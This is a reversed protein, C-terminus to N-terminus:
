CWWCSPRRGRALNILFGNVSETSSTRSGTCGTCRSASPCTRPDAGGSPADVREAWTSSTSAASMPSRCGSPRSATSGCAAHPRAATGASVTGIDRIRILEASREGSRGTASTTVNALEDALSARITLDGIDEPSRFEGTPAIRFRRDQLDVSGADVVMNQQELTAILSADTIGLEALQTASADIYVVKDQVGWLDVRAVGEVVSLEKRIDKAYHELEAYSFGDGTVALQFGFVDGFDDGVDPRGAGPPLSGELDRVKRRLQDWVQPLRDSWFEAKINVKVMSLGPTSWSTIEKIEAMEQLALEIRDTVELEVETPSAGPYPTIILADKVTFEPDELQGLAFFSAIGALILLGVTFYTVARKEIAVQALSM